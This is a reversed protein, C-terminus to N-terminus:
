GYISRLYIRSNQSGKFRAWIKNFTGVSNYINDYSFHSYDVVPLDDGLKKSFPISIQEAVDSFFGGTVKWEINEFLLM